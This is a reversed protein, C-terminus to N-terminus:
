PLPLENYQHALLEVQFYYFEGQDYGMDNTMHFELRGYMIDSKHLQYPPKGFLEISLGPMVPLQTIIHVPVSGLCHVDFDVFYTICPYANFIYVHLTKGDIYADVWSVDKEPVENDGFLGLSWAVEVTGTEVTGDLILVDYWMAYAAGVVSLMLLMSAFMVAM